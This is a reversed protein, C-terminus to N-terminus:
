PLMELNLGMLWIMGEDQESLMRGLVKKLHTKLQIDSLRCM